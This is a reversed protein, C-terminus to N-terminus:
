NSLYAVLSERVQDSLHLNPMVTGAKWGHPDKLWLDLWEKRKRFGVFTLDPGYTGGKGAITHCRACGFGTFYDKGYAAPDESGHSATVGISAAALFVLPIFWSKM